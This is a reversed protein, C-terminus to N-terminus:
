RFPQAARLDLAVPDTMRRLADAQLLTGDPAHLRYSLIAAGAVHVKEGTFLGNKAITVGDLRLDIDLLLADRTRAAYALFRVANFLPSKDTAEGARLSDIFADVTKLLAGAHTVSAALLRKEAGKAADALADAVTIQNAFEGRLAALARVRALLAAHVTTDLEGLYGAGLGTIRQPCAKFLASAFLARAGEGYAIGSLTVDSKFLAAIDAASKITAPIAALAVLPALAAPRSGPPTHQQIVRQLQQNHRGLQETMHLLGDDVTRAAVIGQSSAADYLAVKRAPLATCLERALENAVDVSKMLAVVGARSTDFSGALPKAAAPPIRALWEAREAEAVALRLEADRLALTKDDGAVAVAAAASRAHVSLALVVCVFWQLCGMVKGKAVVPNLIAFPLLVGNGNIL